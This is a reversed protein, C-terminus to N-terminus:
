HLPVWGRCAWAVTAFSRPGDGQGAEYAAQVAAALPARRTPELSAIYKGLPGEGAEIPAWFDEFSDYEMRILLSTQEVDNLGAGSWAEHMEAPRTMPRSYAEDRLPATSADLAVITDWAMRMNPMGGQLDWVAAAVTGGPRVVRRMERVATAADPVFHLVLLSLARDFSADPFPLACADAQQITIRRDTNRRQAEAVFLPSYDIATIESVKAVQPLTFTLSGTGCGVDLVHDGDHVGAFDILLPALRRSWRGMMRDYGEASQVNFKSAM